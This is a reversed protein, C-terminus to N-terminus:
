VVSMESEIILLCKREDLMSILWDCESRYIIHKSILCMNFIRFILHDIVNAFCIDDNNSFLNLLTFQKM